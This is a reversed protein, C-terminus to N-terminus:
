NKNSFDFLNSDIYSIVPELTEFSHEQTLKKINAFLNLQEATFDKIEKKSM